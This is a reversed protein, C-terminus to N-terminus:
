SEKNNRNPAKIVTYETAWYDFGPLPTRKGNKFSYRPSKDFKVSRLCDGAEFSHKAFKDKRFRIIGSTGRQISYLDAKVGYKDDVAKVFYSNSEAKNDVSLCLGINEMESQLRVHIPLITDLLSDEYVECAKLRAEFSKVTKTLKQKGEFFETFVKMLKESGGFQEFYNLEILIRIQRTDLCSNMQLERLLSTFTNFAPVTKEITRQERGELIAYVDEEDPEYITKTMKGIRYLDQAAKKSMYRISSLSQSITKHKKDVLWDRNDQGFRGATLSINKYRKMEAIISSIKETNKKEDYLKLM